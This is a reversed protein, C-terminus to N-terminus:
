RGFALAPDIRVARRLGVLSALLAVVTAAAALVVYSSAPVDVPMPFAPAMVLAVLAGLVAAVGALVLSQVALGGFLSRTRTGIAKFVALDRTRELVSLYVMSGVIGAAVLWLLGNILRVTGVSDKTPRNLDAVVQANTMLRLGPPVADVHGQIAIGSVLRQSGVFRDQIDALSAFVTPGGFYYSVNRATGVVTADSGGLQVRDGPRRHLLTDTVVDGPASPGTGSALPPQGLGGPTYGVANVDRGGINERMLLFPDARRVGPQAALAAAGVEPALRTTTFPGSGGDSVLWEDAHFLAVIRGSEATVHHVLGDLVLTLGFCLATALAAILFRRRRYQLDRLSTRWM